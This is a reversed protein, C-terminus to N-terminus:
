CDITHSGELATLALLLPQSVELGLNLHVRCLVFGQILLHTLQMLLNAAKASKEHAMFVARYTVRLTNALEQVTDLVRILEVDMGVGVAHCVHRVAAHLRGHLARLVIRGCMTVSGLVIVLIM